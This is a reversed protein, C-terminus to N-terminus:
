RQVLCHVQYSTLLAQGQIYCSPLGGGYFTLRATRLFQYFRFLANTLLQVFRFSSSPERGHSGGRECCGADALVIGLRSRVPGKAM